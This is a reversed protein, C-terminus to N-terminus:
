RVIDILLESFEKATLDNQLSVRMNVKLSLVKIHPWLISSKLCAKIEDARTGRPVVPLTQRFDGALLVTLGGMLRNSGTIDQLTRTLPEVGKKHAMTCEDWVIFKTERLIYAMDSQKSINCIANDSHNLNFPLKFASHATKGGDILTAAIGSSAVAIAINKGSRVKALLLNILFTKGTGGPADLFFLQGFNSAVSNLVDDYVKKQDHNFKSVGVSVVQILRSIDYALESMFKRNKIIISEERIPEPLGFHLLSKGSMSTVIDELLILCQIYVIDVVPESNRNERGMRRRIDESLRERYKGWLKLPHGVLCFVIM